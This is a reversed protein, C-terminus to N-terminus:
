ESVFKTGFVHTGFVSQVGGFFSFFHQGYFLKFCGPYSYCIKTNGVTFQSPCQLCIPPCVDCENVRIYINGILILMVYVKSIHVTGYMQYLTTGKSVIFLVEVLM